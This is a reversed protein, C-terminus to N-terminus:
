CTRIDTLRVVLPELTARLQDQSPGVVKLTVTYTSPDEGAFTGLAIINGGIDFIASSLRSIEGARNPVLVTARIGKERAGLMELFIKFIDTETIIGVMKGARLVPLGGVKSDAMLRAAEEIPTSEDVTLVDKTMVDKVTVKSMLYHLEWVSLSTASSPAAHLIDKEAVIGVLKGEHVVPTRRIHERRMLDLAELIPLDPSVTIVPHAMREGVLM